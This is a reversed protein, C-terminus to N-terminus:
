PGTLVLLSKLPGTWKQNNGKFRACTHCGQVYKRIDGQLGEWIYFRELLKTTRYRGVHGAVPTDHCQRLAEMRCAPPVWIWGKVEWLGNRKQAFASRDHKKTEEKIRDILPKDKRMHVARAAIIAEPFFTIDRNVPNETGEGLDERRSLADARGNTTGAKYVL